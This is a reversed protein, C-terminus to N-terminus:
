VDRERFLICPCRVGHAPILLAGQIILGISLKFLSSIILYVLCRPTLRSLRWTRYM